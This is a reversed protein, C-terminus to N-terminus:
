VGAAARLFKGEIQLSRRGHRVHCIFTKFVYFLPHLTGYYHITHSFYLPM